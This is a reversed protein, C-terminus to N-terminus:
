TGAKYISFYLLSKLISADFKLMDTKRALTPQPALVEFHVLVRSQIQNAPSIEGIHTWTLLSWTKRQRLLSSGNPM